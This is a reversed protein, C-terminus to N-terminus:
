QLYQHRKLLAEYSGDAQMRALLLNFSNILNHANPTSRTIGLFIDARGLPKQSTHLHEALAPNLAMERRSAWDDVLAADIRKSAVERLLQSCYNLKKLDVQDKIGNLLPSLALESYIGLIPRAKDNQAPLHLLDDLTQIRINTQTNYSVLRLTSQLFASTLLWPSEQRTGTTALIGNLENNDAQQYIRKVPEFRIETRYGLRNLISSVLDTLLGQQPLNSGAYPTWEDAGLILVPRRDPNEQSIQFIARSLGQTQILAQIQEHATKVLSVGDIVVDKILWRQHSTQFQYNVSVPNSTNVRTLVKAHRTDTQQADLIDTTQGQFHSFIAAYQHILRRRFADVFQLQQDSSARNWYEGLSAKAMAPYNVLPQIEEEILQDLYGPNLQILEADESLRTSVEAISNKILSEPSSDTDAYSGNTILLLTISTLVTLIIGKM